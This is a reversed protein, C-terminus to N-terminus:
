KIGLIKIEDKTLKQKIQRIINKREKKDKILNNLKEEKQKRYLELGISLENEFDEFFFRTPIKNYFNWEILEKNENYIMANIEPLNSYNHMFKITVYDNKFYNELFIIDDVSFRTIDYDYFRTTCSIHKKYVKSFIKSIEEFRRNIKNQLTLYNNQFTNSKLRFEKEKIDVIKKEEKLDQFSQFFEEKKLSM